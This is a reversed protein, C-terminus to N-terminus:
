VSYACVKYAVVTCYYRIPALYKKMKSRINAAQSVAKCVIGVESYVFGAADSGVSFGQSPTLQVFPCIHWSPIHVHPAFSFSHSLLHMSSFAHQVFSSQSEPLQSFLTQVAGSSHLNPSSNFFPSHLHVLSLIYQSSCSVHMSRSAHQMCVSHSLNSLHTGVSNRLLMHRLIPSFFIQLAIPPLPLASINLACSCAKLIVACSQHPSPLMVKSIFSSVIRTGWFPVTSYVGAFAVINWSPM